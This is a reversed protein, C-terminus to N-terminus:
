RGPSEAALTVVDELGIASGLSQPQSARRSGNVQQHGVKDHRFHITQLKGPSEAGEM